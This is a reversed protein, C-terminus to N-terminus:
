QPQPAAGHQLRSQWSETGPVSRSTTNSAEWSNPRHWRLHFFLQLFLLIFCYCGGFVYCPIRTATGGGGGLETGDRQRGNCPGGGGAAAPFVSSQQKGQVDPFASATLHKGDGRIKLSVASLVRVQDM